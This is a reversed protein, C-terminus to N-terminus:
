FLFFLTHVAFCCLATLCNGLKALHFIIQLTQFVKGSATYFISGKNCLNGSVVCETTVIYMYQGRIQMVQRKIHERYQKCAPGVGTSLFDELQVIAADSTVDVQELLLALWGKMEEDM